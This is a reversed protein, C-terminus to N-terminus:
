ARLCCLHNLHTGQMAAANGLNVRTVGLALCLAPRDFRPAMRLFWAQGPDRPLIRLFLQMLMARRAYWLCPEDMQISMYPLELPCDFWGFSRTQGKRLLMRM